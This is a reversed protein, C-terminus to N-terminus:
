DEFQLPTNFPWRLKPQLLEFPEQPMATASRYRPQRAIPECSDFDIRPCWDSVYSTM